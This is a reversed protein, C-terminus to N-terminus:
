RGPICCGFKRLAGVGKIKVNVICGYGQTDINVCAPCGRVCVGVHEPLDIPTNGLDLPKDQGCGAMGLVPCLLIFIALWWLISKHM